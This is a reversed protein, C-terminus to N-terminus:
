DFALQNSEISTFRKTNMLMVCCKENARKEERYCDEAIFLIVIVNM